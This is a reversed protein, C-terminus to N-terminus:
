INLLRKFEKIIIENDKFQLQSKLDANWGKYIELLKNSSDEVRRLEEITPCRQSVREILKGKLLTLQYGIVIFTLVMLFLIIRNSLKKYKRILKKM